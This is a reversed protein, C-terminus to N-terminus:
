MYLTCAYKNNGALDQGLSTGWHYMYLPVETYHDSQFATVENSCGVLELRLHCVNMHVHIEM